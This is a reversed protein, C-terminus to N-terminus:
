IINNNNNDLINRGVVQKGMQRLNKLTCEASNIEQM